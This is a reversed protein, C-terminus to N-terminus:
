TSHYSDKYFYCSLLHDSSGPACDKKHPWHTRLQDPLEGRKISFSLEIYRIQQLGGSKGIRLWVSYMECWKKKVNQQGHMM